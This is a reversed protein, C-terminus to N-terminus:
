QEVFICLSDKGLFEAFIYTAKVELRSGSVLVEKVVGRAGNYHAVTNTSSGFVRLTDVFITDDSTVFASATPGVRSYHSVIKGITSAGVKIDHTAVASYFTLGGGSLTEYDTPTVEVVVDARVCPHVPFLPLTPKIPQIPDFPAPAASAQLAYWVCCRCM